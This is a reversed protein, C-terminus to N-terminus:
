SNAVWVHEILYELQERMVDIENMPRPVRPENL